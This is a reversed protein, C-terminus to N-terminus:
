VDQRKVLLYAQFRTDERVPTLPLYGKEIKQDKWGLPYNKVMDQHFSLAAGDCTYHEVVYEGESLPHVYRDYLIRSLVGMNMRLNIEVCPHVQFGHKDRCVMMDVGLYGQYDQGLLHTLVQELTVRLKCLLDVPVYHSLKEEIASNSMLCNAKYNGHVDTEFCSYGMFRVGEGDAIFEMAFDVVKNYIPEAMIGGQVKLIRSVWSALSSNWSASSIKWLGRGSGSWPAKLIIDGKERIFNEVEQLNTCWRMEGCIGSLDSFVPLVELCRQRSSLYRIRCLKEFSPLYCDEVGEQRLRHVLSPTWGWPMYHASIWKDMWTVSDFWQSCAPCDERRRCVEFLQRHLLDVRELSDVKVGCGEDAFWVPLVSLDAAMRIIEAPAKYYPTFNAMAMDYDPNFVYVSLFMSMDALFSVFTCFFRLSVTM